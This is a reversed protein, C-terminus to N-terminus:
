RKVVIGSQSLVSAVFVPLSVIEDKVLSYHVKNIYCQHNKIVRCSASKEKSGVVVAKAEPSVLVEETIKKELEETELVPEVEKDVDDIPEEQVVVPTEESTLNESTEVPVVKTSKATSKRKVM